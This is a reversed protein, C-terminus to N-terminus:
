YSDRKRDRRRGNRDGRGSGGRGGREESGRSRRDERGGGHGGREESGHGVNLGVVGSLGCSQVIKRSIKPPEVLGNEYAFANVFNVLKDHNKSKVGISKLQSRYYGLMSTYAGEVLSPFKHTSSKKSLNKQIRKMEPSTGDDDEDEQFVNYMEEEIDQEEEEKLPQELPPINLGYLSDLFKREVDSLVLVGVGKKGARGTRGLRHIYTERSDPMGVQVVHTVDPYDVGRASVDSTFLVVGGKKSAARFDASAKTRYRQTKRSHLEIVSKKLIANFIYAYYATLLTTPFFVVIKHNPTGKMLNLIVDISGSIQKSPPLIVHHQSVQENTHTAPDHDHICDVTVYDEKMVTPLIAQLSKPLTASFLMTQRQTPSPLFTMIRQIDQRFGLDLLRDTEDLVLVRTQSLINSFTTDHIKTNELHDQLRGPTAVLITPLKDHLRHVDQQRPSGGFMVQSSLNDHASLLLAAQKHIQVALERTPSLVLIGIRSGDDYDAHRLISEVAPVLFALTKGTGTRARGLVDLGSSAAHFTKHQIETMTSLKLTHSIAKASLPHLNPLSDFRPYSEEEAQEEEKPLTEDEKEEKTLTDSLPEEFILNSPMASASSSFTRPTYELRTAFDYPHNCRALSTFHSLPRSSSSARANSQCVNKPIFSLQIGKRLSSGKGQRLLVSLHSTFPM